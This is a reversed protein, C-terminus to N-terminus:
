MAEQSTVKGFKPVFDLPRLPPTAIFLAIDRHDWHAVNALYRRAVDAVRNREWAPGRRAVFPNEFLSAVVRAHLNAGEIPARLRKFPDIGRLSPSFGGAYVEQRIVSSIGKKRKKRKKKRTKKGPEMETESVVHHRERELAVFRRLIVTPSPSSDSNRAILQALEVKRRSPRSMFRAGAPRETPYVLREGSFHKDFYGTIFDILRPFNWAPATRNILPEQLLMEVIRISFLATFDGTLHMQIEPDADTPFVRVVTKTPENRVIEIAQLPTMDFHYPSWQRWLDGYRPEGPPETEGEEEEEKEEVTVLSRPNYNVRFNPHRLFATIKEDPWDAWLRLYGRVAEALPAKNWQRGRRDIGTGELLLRAVLGYNVVGEATQHTIRRGLPVVMEKPSRGSHENDLARLAAIFWRAQVPTWQASQEDTLFSFVIENLRSYDWDLGIREIRKGHFLYKVITAASPVRHRGQFSRMNQMVKLYTWPSASKDLRPADRPTHRTLAKFWFPYPASTKIIEWAEDPIDEWNTGDERDPLIDMLAPPIFNPNKAFSAALNVPWNGLEVLVTALDARLRDDTDRRSIYSLRHNFDETMESLSIISDLTRDARQEVVNYVLVDVPTGKEPRRFLYGDLQFLLMEMLRRLPKQRAPTSGTLAM